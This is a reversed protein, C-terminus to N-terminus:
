RVVKFDRASDRMLMTGNRMWYRDVARAAKAATEFAFTAVDLDRTLTRTEIINDEFISEVQFTFNRRSPEIYSPPVDAKPRYQKVWDQPTPAYWPLLVGINERCRRCRLKGILMGFPICGLLGLFVIARADRSHCCSLCHLVVREDRGAAEGLDLSPLPAPLNSVSMGLRVWHILRRRVSPGAGMARECSRDRSQARGAIRALGSTLTHGKVPPLMERKIAIESAVSISCM